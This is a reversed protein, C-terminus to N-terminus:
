LQLILFHNPDVIIEMNLPNPHYDLVLFFLIASFFLKAIGISSSNVLEVAKLPFDLKNKM